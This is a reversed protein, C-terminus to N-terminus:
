TNVKEMYAGISVILAIFSLLIPLWWFKLAMAKRKSINFDLELKASKIAEMKLFEDHWTQWEKQSASFFENTKTLHIPGGINSEMSLLGIRVFTQFLKDNKIKRSDQKEYYNKFDSLLINIEFQHEAQSDLYDFFHEEDTKIYTSSM